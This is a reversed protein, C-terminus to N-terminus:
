RNKNFFAVLHVPLFKRLNNNLYRLVIGKNGAMVITRYLLYELLLDAKSLIKLHKLNYRMLFSFWDKYYDPYIKGKMDSQSVANEHLRYEVTVKDLFYVKNGRELIKLFLPYDELLRYREDYYDLAALLDKKIIYAPGAILVKRRLLYNYQVEVSADTVYFAKNEACVEPRVYIFDKTGNSEIFSHQKSIIVEAQPSVYSFDIFSQISDPVLIDDGAIFKIWIGKVKGAGQNCNASIGSNKTATIIDARVFRDKNENIWTRCVEVTNDTSCDDTVILEINRYTQARASNLTELVHPASNYTIVIISVLPIDSFPTNNQIM